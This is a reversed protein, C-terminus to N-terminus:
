DNVIGVGPAKEGCFYEPNRSDTFTVQSIRMQKGDNVSFVFTGGLLTLHRNRTKNV